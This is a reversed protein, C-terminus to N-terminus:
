FRNQKGILCPFYKGSLLIGPYFLLIIIVSIAVGVVGNEESSFGFIGLLKSVVEIALLNFGIILITGDSIVRILKNSYCNLLQAIAFIFFTGAFGGAYYLFMNRGYNFTAMDVRGNYHNALLLIGLCVVAWLWPIPSLQKKMWIGAVFFPLAMVVSNLTFYFHVEFCSFLYGTCLASICLAIHYVPLTTNTICRVIFLAILFWSPTCVAIWFDTHYGIGLLIAGLRQVLPEMSWHYEPKMLYGGVFWLLFCVGNICLYPVILAHFDKKIREKAPLEKFLYGSLVFFLPMHFSYILQRCEADVLNGHGLIVLWIGIAKGWDVWNYHVKTEGKVM